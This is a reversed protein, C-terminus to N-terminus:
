LKYISHFYISICYLYMKILIETFNNELPGILLIGANAWIIAQHRFLSLGNNSGIITLKNVCIHKVRGWHSLNYARVIGYMAKSAIRTHLQFEFKIVKSDTVSDLPNMAAWDGNNAKNLPMWIMVPSTLLIAPRKHWFVICRICDSQFINRYINRGIVNCFGYM